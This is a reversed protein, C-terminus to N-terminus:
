PAQERAQASALTALKSLSSAGRSEREVADAISKSIADKSELLLALSALRVNADQDLDGIANPDGHIGVFGLGAILRGLVEAFRSRSRQAETEAAREAEVSENERSAEAKARAQERRARNVEDVASQEAAEAADSAERYQKESAALLDNLEHEVRRAEARAAAHEATGARRAANAREVAVNLQSVIDNRTDLAARQREEERTVAQNALRILRNADVVVAEAQEIKASAQQQAERAVEARRSAARVKSVETELVRVAAGGFAAAFSGDSDRSPLRGEASAQRYGDFADGFADATQVEAFIEALAALKERSAEDHALEEPGLSDLARQYAPRYAPPYGLKYYADRIARRLSVPDEPPQKAVVSPIVDAQFLHLIHDPHEVSGLITELAHVAGTGQSLITTADPLPDPPPPAVAAMLPEYAAIVSDAATWLVMRNSGMGRCLVRLTELLSEPDEPLGFTELLLHLDNKMLALFRRSVFAGKDMAELEDRVSQYAATAGLSRLQHNRVRAKAAEQAYRVRVHSVRLDGDGLGLVRAIRPGLFAANRGIRERVSETRNVMKTHLRDYLDSPLMRSEALALSIWYRNEPDGKAVAIMRTWVPTPGQGALLSIHSRSLLYYAHVVRDFDGSSLETEFFAGTTDDSLEGLGMEVLREAYWAPFHNAQPSYADFLADEISTYAAVLKPYADLAAAAERKELGTSFAGGSARDLAAAYDAESEIGVAQAAATQAIISALLAIWPIRLRGHV